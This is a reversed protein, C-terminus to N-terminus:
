GLVSLEERKGDFRQPQDRDDRQPRSLTVSEVGPASIGTETSVVVIEPVGLLTESGPPVVYRERSSVDCISLVSMDGSITRVPLLLGHTFYTALSAHAGPGRLYVSMGREACHSYIQQRTAIADPNFCEKISIGRWSTQPSRLAMNTFVANIVTDDSNPTILAIVFSESRRNAIAEVATMSVAEQRESCALWYDYANALLQTTINDRFRSMPHMTRFQGEGDLSVRLPRDIVNGSLTQVGDFIHRSGPDDSYKGSPIDDRGSKASIRIDNQMALIKRGHDLVQRGASTLKLRRGDREFLDAGISEQLRKLQLSIASISRGVVSAANALSGSEALAVLSRLEDIKLDRLM